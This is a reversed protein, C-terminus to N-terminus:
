QLKRWTTRQLNLLWKVGGIVSAVNATVFYLPVAGLKFSRGLREAALGLAALGYFALQIALTVHYLGGVKLALMVNTVLAIVLCWPVVTPCVFHSVYIWWRRFPFPLLMWPHRFISQYRGAQGRVRQWFFKTSDDLVDGRAVARPEFVVRKGQRIVGLPVAVDDNITDDPPFPFLERRCAYITGDCYCVGYLRSECQQLFRQLAWYVRTGIGVASDRRNFVHKGTVIGISDDDFHKTLHLLADSDFVESVDTLICIDGKAERVLKNVTAMKGSRPGYRFLRVGQDAFTAVIEDTGDDSGDSGVLIEMEEHPYKLSLCNRLKRAIHREENYAAILITVPLPSHLRAPFANEKIARAAIAIIAPYAVYTYLVCALALWLITALVSM